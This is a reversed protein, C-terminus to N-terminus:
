TRFWWAIETQTAVADQLADITTRGVYLRVGARHQVPTPAQRRCAWFRLPELDDRIVFVYGPYTAAVAELRQADSAPLRGCSAQTVLLM